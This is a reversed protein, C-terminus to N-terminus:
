NTHVFVVLHMLFSITEKVTNIVALLLVFLLMVAAVAAVLAPVTNFITLLCCTRQAVRYNDMSLYVRKFNVAYSYRALDFYAKVEQPIPLADVFPKYQTDVWESSCWGLECQLWAANDEWTQYHFPFESCDRFCEVTRMKITTNVPVNTGSLCGDWHQLVSPWYFSIPMIVKLMKLMEEMFCTPLMPYCLVSFDFVFYMVMPFYSLFLLADVMPINLFKGLLSVVLFLLGVLFGGWFLSRRQGHCHQVKEFDCSLLSTVDKSLQSPTLGRDPSSAYGQIYDLDVSLFSVLASKFQTILFPENPKPRKIWAPLKPLAEEFTYQLVPRKPGTKTYHQFTSQFGDLSLNFALSGALCVHERQTYEYRPPWYFPGKNWNEALVPDLNAFNGDAVSASM